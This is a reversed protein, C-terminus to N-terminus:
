ETLANLEQLLFTAIRKNTEEDYHLGDPTHFSTQQLYTNTDIYQINDIQRMTENFTQIQANTVRGETDYPTTVPNVSVFVVDYGESLLIEYAAQYRPLNDVVDNVGLMSIITYAHSPDADIQARVSPLVEMFYDFGVGVEAYVTVEKPFLNQENMAVTRSDGLIVARRTGDFFLPPAVYTDSLIDGPYAIVDPEKLSVSHISLSPTSSKPACLVSVLSGLFAIGCLVVLFAVSALFTNPTADLRPINSSTYEQM